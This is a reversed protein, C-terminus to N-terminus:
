DLAATWRRWDDWDLDEARRTGEIGAKELAAIAPSGKPLGSRLMKRRHLFAIKLLKDFNRSRREIERPPLSEEGAIRPSKRSELVVVESNVDPPPAFAGPPVALLKRVDWRNQIWLSLSGWAKEGPEARLRHAVEAQFMLVMTRIGALPSSADGTGHVALKQLIATGSSYPLNSVVVMPRARLVDEDSLELFDASVVEVRPLDRSQEIWDAALKRDKEVILFRELSPVEPIAELLPRTIAGRGPGVELLGRAEVDRARDITASVIADIVKTDRLFHQGFARRRPSAPM